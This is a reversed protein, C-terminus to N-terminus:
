ADFNSWDSLAYPNVMPQPQAMGLSKLRMPARSTMGPGVPMGPSMPAGMGPGQLSFPESYIDGLGYRQGLKNQRQRWENMTREYLAEQRRAAEERRRDQEREYELAERRAREQAKLAKDQSSKGLLAGGLSAAGGIAAGAVAAPM